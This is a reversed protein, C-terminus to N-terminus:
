SGVINYSSFTKLLLYVKFIFSESALMLISSDGFKRYFYTSCLKQM